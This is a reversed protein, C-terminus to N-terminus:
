GGGGCSAIGDGSVDAQGLIERAQRGQAGQGRKRRTRPRQRTRKLARRIPRFPAPRRPLPRSRVKEQKAVPGDDEVRM